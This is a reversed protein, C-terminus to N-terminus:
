MPSKFQSHSNRFRPSEAKPNFAFKDDIVVKSGLIDRTEGLAWVQSLDHSVDRYLASFGKPEKINYFFEPVKFKFDFRPISPLGKIAAFTNYVNILRSVPVGQRTEVKFSVRLAESAKSVQKMLKAVVANAAGVGDEDLRHRVERMMQRVETITPNSKAALAAEIILSPDNTQKAFWASFVPFNLATATALGGQHICVLDDGLTTAFKNLVNRPFDQGYNCTKSIYHQQYAQRIPYLFTDAKLNKGALSYYISRNALWVLSAVFAPIAGTAGGTKGDGWKADPIHYGKKIPTGYRDVLSVNGSPHAGVDKAESLETFISSALAGYKEFDDSYADALGKLTLYYVSSSIDWTCVIHTKLIEFFRKFDENAFSGGKIEPKLQNSITAAENSLFDLGYDKASIFNIFSFSGIREDRHKEIYDDIAIVDDYFLIAQLLNELAVIDTDVSHRSRSPAQGAVRQVATLTANDILAYTM